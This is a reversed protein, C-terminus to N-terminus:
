EWFDMIMNEWKEKTCTFTSRVMASFSNESDITWRIKIVNNWKILEQLDDISSEVEVLEQNFSNKKMNAKIENKREEYESLLKKADEVNKVKDSIRRSPKETKNFEFEINSFKATIPSKISNLVMKKCEKVSKQKTVIPFEFWNQESLSFIYDWLWYLMIIVLSIRRYKKLLNSFKSM